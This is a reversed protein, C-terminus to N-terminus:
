ETSEVITEIHHTEYGMRRLAAIAQTRLMSGFVPHPESELQVQAEILGFTGIAGEVRCMAHVTYQTLM